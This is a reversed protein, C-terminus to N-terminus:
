HHSATVFVHHIGVWVGDLHVLLRQFSDDISWTVEEWWGRKGCHWAVEGLVHLTNCSIIHKLLIKEIIRCRLLVQTFHEHLHWITDQVVTARHSERPPFSQLRDAMQHLLLDVESALNYTLEISVFSSLTFCNAELATTINTKFWSLM